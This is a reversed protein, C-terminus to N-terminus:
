GTVDRNHSVSSGLTELVALPSIHALLIGPFRRGVGYARPCLAAVHLLQCDESAPECEGTGAQCYGSTALGTFGGFTILSHTTLSYADPPKRVSVFSTLHPNM